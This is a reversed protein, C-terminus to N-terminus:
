AKRIRGGWTLAAGVVLLLTGIALNIALAASMTMWPLMALMMLGIAVICMGVVRFPSMMTSAPGTHDDEALSGIPADMRALFADARSQEEPPTPFFARALEMTVYTVFATSLFLVIEMKLALGAIVLEENAPVWTM